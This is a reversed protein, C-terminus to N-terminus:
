PSTPDSPQGKGAPFIYWGPKGYGFRRIYWAAHAELAIMETDNLPIGRGTGADAKLSTM